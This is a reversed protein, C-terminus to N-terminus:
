SRFFTEWKDSILRGVLLQEKDVKTLDERIINCGKRM